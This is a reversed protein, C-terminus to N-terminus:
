VPPGMRLSSSGSRVVPVQELSVALRRPTAFTKLNGHSLGGNKLAASMSQGLQRVSSALALAPLEETGIELLLTESKSM